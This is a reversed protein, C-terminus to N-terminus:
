ATSSKSHSSPLKTTPKGPINSSRPAPLCNLQQWSPVIKRPFFTPRTDHRLTTNHAPNHNSQALDANRPRLYCYNAPRLINRSLQHANTHHHLLSALPLTHRRKKPIIPPHYLRSAAPALEYYSRLLLQLSRSPAVYQETTSLCHSGCSPSGCRGWLESSAALFLSSFPIPQPTRGSSNTM